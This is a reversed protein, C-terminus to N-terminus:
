ARYGSASANMSARRISSGSPVNRFSWRRSSNAQGRHCTAVRPLPTLAQPAPEGKSECRVAPERSRLSNHTAAGATAATPLHSGARASEHAPTERRLRRVPVRPPDDASPKWRRRRRPRGPCSRRRQGSPPPGNSLAMSGGTCRCRQHDKSRPRARSSATLTTLPILASDPSGGAEPDPRNARQPRM